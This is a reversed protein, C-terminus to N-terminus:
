QSKFLNVLGKNHYHMIQVILAYFLDEMLHREIKKKSKDFERAKQIKM